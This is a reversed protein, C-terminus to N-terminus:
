FPLKFPDADSVEKLTDEESEDVEEEEAEVIVEKLTDEESEDV